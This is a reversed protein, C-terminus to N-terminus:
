EKNNYGKKKFDNRNEKFNIMGKHFCVKQQLNKYTFNRLEVLKDRNEKQPSKNDVLIM